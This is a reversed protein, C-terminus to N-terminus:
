RQKKLRARHLPNINGLQHSVQDLLRRKRQDDPLILIRGEPPDIVVRVPLSSQVKFLFASDDVVSKPLYLFHKGDKRKSIRGQAQLVM